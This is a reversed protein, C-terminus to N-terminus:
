AHGLAIRGQVGNETDKLAVNKYVLARSLNQTIESVALADNSKVGAVSYLLISGPM